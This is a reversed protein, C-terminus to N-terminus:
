IRRLKKLLILTLLIVESTLIVSYSFPLASLSMVPILFKALIAILVLGPLTVFLPTWTDKLAYFSRAILHMFSEAPIAFAFIALLKGTRVVDAEVFRGGGLFLRVVWEGFFFFFIASLGTMIGLAKATERLQYLFGVRDGLAAKKSLSAFVATSFAIGFLSVPVSQFNRAFSLVVISGVTLTSALSTFIFFTIQEIPQGAMRPIMLKLIKRFEPHRWQAPFRWQIKSKAIDAWRIALHMLAGIVVGEVLGLPGFVKALPIGIIIGLNYFIPALGYGWFREYSILINGLTNSIAFIIPSLLLLRAMLVLLEKDEFAFGPAVIDALRPMFIFVPIALIALIVPAAVLMTSAVKEAEADENRAYLHTFVPVFAATLAGAVFINLLLDPIIFAANYVDLMRSAGFVRAFLIDRVLGLAYSGLTLVTLLTAGKRFISGFLYTKLKSFM